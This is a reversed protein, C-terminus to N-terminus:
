DVFMQRADLARHLMRAHSGALVTPKASKEFGATIGRLLPMAEALRRAM